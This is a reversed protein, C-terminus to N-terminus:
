IEVKRSVFVWLDDTKWREGPKASRGSLRLEAGGACLRFVDPDGYRDSIQKMAILKWDKGPYQLRLHPGVEAPCLELGLETAKAYIEDTTAGNSFGLQGVTFQVLHYTEPNQSFETKYSIDKGWDTLYIAKEKLKAEADAPSKISPDTELTQKFIKKDPFSEYLYKINPYKETIQYIKINWPGVYAVTNESLDELKTAIQESKCDFLIPLDEKVDRKSRIEAIRPDKNHGFGEINSDLEYLFVLEDRNLTPNLYEEESTDKSKKFCKRYLATMKKMDNTKKEYKAKEAEGFNEKVKTNAIDLMSDELDQERGSKVGRLEGIQDGHCHIAIRPNTPQGSKDLTYYVYFDGEALQNRAMGLGETCWDTYKGELSKVLKHVDDENNQRYKVWEGRTEEKESFNSNTIQDLSEAAYTDAFNRQFYKKIEQDTQGNAKAQELYQQYIEYIKSLKGRFIDPFPRLTRDNRKLYKATIKKEGTKEDVKEEKNLAQFNIVNRWVLYRFWTPYSAECSTLYDLWADLSEKQQRIVSEAQQQTEPRDIMEQTVEIKGHGQEEAIRQEVKFMEAIVADKKTLLNEYIAPRLMELNRERVREDKNLFVNELRDMYAEIREGPDNPINEGTQHEQREVAKEVEESTQLDPIKLHLPHKEM